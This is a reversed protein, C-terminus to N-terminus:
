FEAWAENGGAGSDEPFADFGSDDVVEGGAADDAPFADFGVADAQGDDAPFADFGTDEVAFLVLRHACGSHLELAFASTTIKLFLHFAVPVVHCCVPRCQRLERIFLRLLQSKLFHMLIRIQMHVPQARKVALLMLVMLAGLVVRHHQHRATQRFPMLILHRPKTTQRSRLLITPLRLSIMLQFRM